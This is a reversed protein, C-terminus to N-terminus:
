ESLIGKIHEYVEKPQKSGDIVFLRGTPKYYNKLAEAQEHFISLRKKVTEERDDARQILPTKGDESMGPVAPPNYKIHYIKNTLPSTRRGSAREIIDKDPVELSIIHTLETKLSEKLMIDLARAQAITRPFGDLIFGNSCDANSLREEMLGIIIDDTVLKGEQMFTDAVKGLPTQAKVAARLIDGTSIQIIHCDKIINESQTGKGAGPAGLFVINKRM